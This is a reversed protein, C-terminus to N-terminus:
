IKLAAAVLKWRAIFSPKNHMARNAPSTSPLYEATFGTARTCENNFLNTAIKGTTFIKSIQTEELLRTFNNVVPNKISGDSAGCIDCSHLVDWLAIRNRLLFAIRSQRDPPPAEQELVFALITWFCNQPNGYYIGYERSKPSPISGLILVKSRADYIPPWPHVIHTPAMLHPDTKM